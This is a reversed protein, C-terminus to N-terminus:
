SRNAHIAAEGVIRRAAVRDVKGSDLYPLREVSVVRAPVKYPPLSKGLTRRIKEANSETDHDLEVVAIPLEGSIRDSVGVVAANVVGPLMCLQNEIELLSVRHGKVKLIEQTRGTIFLFGDDDLYGLDGTFFSGNRFRAATAAQEKWYGSSIGPGRAVIEGEQRPGLEVGAEDVISIDVGDVSRGVSGKKAEFDEPDLYTLRPSAETAGYMVYLKAPAFAVLTDEQDEVPMSGGAQTVYRLQPFSMNRIASRALLISFTSPVGAFGTVETSIMKQLVVNPYAFRNDLVVSGGVLTHTLLVSLGYIYHLPLILMSRSQSTLRLYSAVSSANAVLNRHSLMVGRPQGTSGSTYMLAAMSTDSVNPLKHLESEAELTSWPVFETQKSLELSPSDSIVLRVPTTDSGTDSLGRAHKRSVMFVEAECHQLVGALDEGRLDTSIPVATRGALLVGFLIAVSECSNEWQIAVRGSPAGCDVIVRSVARAMAACDEYSYWTEGAMIFPGNPDLELARLLLDHVRTPSENVFDTM